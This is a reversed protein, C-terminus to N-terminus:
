IYYIYSKSIFTIKISIYGLKKHMIRLIYNIKITSKTLNAFYNLIYINKYVMIHYIYILTFTRALNKSKCRLHKRDKLNYM